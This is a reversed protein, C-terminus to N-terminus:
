PMDIDGTMNWYYDVQNEEIIKVFGKHRLSFLGSRSKWM